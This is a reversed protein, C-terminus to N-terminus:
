YFIGFVTKVRCMALGDIFASASSCKPQLVYEGKKNILGWNWQDGTKALVWATGKYFHVANGFQPAIFWSNDKNKYGFASEGMCPFPYTDSGPMYYPEFPTSSYCDEKKFESKLINGQKDITYHWRGHCNLLDEILFDVEAKGNDFPLADSYRPPIVFHGQNDVYGYLDDTGLSVIVWGLFVTLLSAAVTLTAKIPSLRM